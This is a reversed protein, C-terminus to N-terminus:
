RVERRTQTGRLVALMQWAADILGYEAAAEFIQAIGKRAIM